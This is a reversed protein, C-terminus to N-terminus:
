PANRAYVSGSSDETALLSTSAVSLVSGSHIPCINTTMMKTAMMYPKQDTM